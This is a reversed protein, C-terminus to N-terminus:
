TNLIDVRPVIELKAPPAPSKMLSGSCGAEPGPAPGWLALLRCVWSLPQCGAGLSYDSPPVPRRRCFCVLCGFALTTEAHSGLGGPDPLGKEEQQALMLSGQCSHRKQVSLAAWLQLGPEVQDQLQLLCLIM